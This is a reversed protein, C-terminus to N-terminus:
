LPTEVPAPVVRPFRSCSRRARRIRAVRGLAPRRKGRCLGARDRARARGGAARGGPRRAPVARLDARPRRSGGRPWSRDGPDGGRVAHAGIQLRVPEDPPSYKLANEILNVLVRQIQHPDVLVEPGEDPLPCRSAGRRTASSTSRARLSSRWSSCRGSRGRRAPRSGRSTSCTGSSATSGSPLTSSRRSSSRRDNEDIELESSALASASTSIAMLPTRLDHSVARLVATKITDARRLAEAELAEAALRERDIAVGLLSALAPLVRRRASPDSTGGSSASRASRADARRSSTAARPRRGSRSRAGGRCSSGARTESSIRELEAAVTGHELLSTAIETLLASERARRRSRAALESVVVSTLVFVLLALWNRSDALTFTHVPELFFFNFALMSGVSVAVAYPLGWLAAVPLVAVLYLVGLSLVPIWDDLVAIVGTTAAVLGISACVGVFPNSEDLAALARRLWRERPESGEGAATAQMAVMM